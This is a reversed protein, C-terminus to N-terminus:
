APCSGVTTSSLPMLGSNQHALVHPLGLGRALRATGAGLHQQHDVGRGVLDVLLHLALMSTPRARTASVPIGSTNTLRIPPWSSSTNSPLEKTMSACRRLDRQPGRGEGLPHIGHIEVTPRSAPTTVGAARRYRAAAPRPLSRTRRAPAPCARSRRCAGSERAHHKPSDPPTSEANVKHMATSARPASRTCETDM